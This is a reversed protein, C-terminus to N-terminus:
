LSQLQVPKSKIGSTGSRLQTVKPIKRVTLKENYITNIMGVEHGQYSYWTTSLTTCGTILSSYITARKKLM